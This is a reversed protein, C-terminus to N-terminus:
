GDNSTGLGDFAVVARRSASMWDAVATIAEKLRLFAVPSSDNFVCVTECSVDFRKGGLKTGLWTVWIEDM